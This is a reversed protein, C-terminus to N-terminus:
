PYAAYQVQHRYIEKWLIRHAWDPYIKKAIWLYEEWTFYNLPNLENSNILTEVYAKLEKYDNTSAKQYMKEKVSLDYEELTVSEYLETKNWLNIIPFITYNYEWHKNKFPSKLKFVNINWVHKIKINKQINAFWAGDSSDVICYDWNFKVINMVHNMCKKKQCKRQDALPHAHVAIM